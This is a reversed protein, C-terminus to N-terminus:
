RQKGGVLTAQKRLALGKDPDCRNRVQSSRRYLGDSGGSPQEGDTNAIWQRSVTEALVSYKKEVSQQLAERRHSRQCGERAHRAHETSPAKSNFPYMSLRRSIPSQTRIAVKFHVHSHYPSQTQIQQKQLTSWM